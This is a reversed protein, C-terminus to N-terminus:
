DASWDELNVENAVGLWALGNILSGQVYDRKLYMFGILYQSQKLGQEAPLKLYSTGTRFTEKQSSHSKYGTCWM